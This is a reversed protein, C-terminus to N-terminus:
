SRIGAVKRGALTSACEDRQERGDRRDVTRLPGCNSVIAGTLLDETLLAGPAMADDAFPRWVRERVRKGPVFRHNRQGGVDGLFHRLIIGSGTDTRLGRLNGFVDVPSEVRFLCPPFVPRRHDLDRPEGHTLIAIGQGVEDAAKASGDLDVVLAPEM